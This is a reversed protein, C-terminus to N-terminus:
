EFEHKGSLLGIRKILAAKGEGFLDYAKLGQKFSRTGYM